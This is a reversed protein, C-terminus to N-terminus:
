VLAAWLEHPLLVSLVNTATLLDVTSCNCKRHRHGHNHRHQLLHVESPIKAWAYTEVPSTVGWLVLRLEYQLRVKFCGYSQRLDHQLVEFYTAMSLGVISCTNEKCWHATNQKKEFQIDAVCKAIFVFVKQIKFCKLFLVCLIREALTSFLFQKLFCLDDAWSLIWGPLDIM